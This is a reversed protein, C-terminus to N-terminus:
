EQMRAFGFVEWAKPSKDPWLKVRCCCPVKLYGFAFLELKSTTDWFGFLPIPQIKRHMPLHKYLTFPLFQFCSCAKDIKCITEVVTSMSEFHLLQLFALIEYVPPSINDLKKSRRLELTIKNSFYWLSSLKLFSLHPYFTM